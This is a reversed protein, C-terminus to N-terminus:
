RCRLEGERIMSAHDPSPEVVVASSAARRCPQHTHTPPPGAPCPRSVPVASPLGAKRTEPLCLNQTKETVAVFTASKSYEVKHTERQMSDPGNNRCHQAATAAAAATESCLSQSM